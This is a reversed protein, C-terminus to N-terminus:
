FEVNSRELKKMIDNRYAPDKDYRDDSMAKVVEAQSRFSDGKQISATGTVMEGTRGTADEYRYQLARVAFFCSLADGRNIAQDFMDVEESTLNNGAWNVMNRYQEPGGAVDQLESAEEQTMERSKIYNEEVNNRYALHMNVIEENSLENVKKNTEETWDTHSEEWLTELLAYTDESTDLEEDSTDDDSSKEDKPQEETSDTTESPEENDNSKEGLKQQLEVYAKELEEADKYKGALLQEQEAVLQEGVKLSDQEDPTLNDAASVTDPSNDYTLTEAM